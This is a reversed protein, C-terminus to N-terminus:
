IPSVVSSSDAIKSLPAQALLNHVTDNVLRFPGSDDCGNSRRAIKSDHRYHFRKDKLQVQLWRRPLSDRTHRSGHVPIKTGLKLARGAFPSLDLSISWVFFLFFSIRLDELM